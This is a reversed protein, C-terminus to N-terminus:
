GSTKNLLSNVFIISVNNVIRIELVPCGDADADRRLCMVHSFSVEAKDWAKTLRSYFVAGCLGAYFVGVFSELFAIFEMSLCDLNREGSVPLLHGYGVTSITVWSMSFAINFTVDHVLEYNGTTICRECYKSTILIIFAFMVVLATFGLFSAFVITSYSISFLFCYNTLDFKWTYISM